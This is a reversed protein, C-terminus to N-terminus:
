YKKTNPPTEQELTYYYLSWQLQTQHHIDIDHDIPILFPEPEQEPKKHYQISAPRTTQQYLVYHQKALLHWRPKISM